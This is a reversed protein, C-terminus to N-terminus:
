YDTINFEDMKRYITRRSMGLLKATRTKNGGTRELAQLVM